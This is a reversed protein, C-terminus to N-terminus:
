LSASTFNLASYHPKTRKRHLFRQIPDTYMTVGTGTLMEEGEVKGWHCHPLSSKRLPNVPLGTVNTKISGWQTRGCHHLSKYEFETGRASSDQSSMSAAPTFCSSGVGIDGSVNQLTAAIFVALPRWQQHRQLGRGKEISDLLLFWEKGEGEEM